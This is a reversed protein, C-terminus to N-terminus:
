YYRYSSYGSTFRSKRKELQLKEILNDINYTNKTDTDISSYLLKIRNILSTSKYENDENKLEELLADIKFRLEKQKQAHLIAEKGGAENVMTNIVSTLVLHPPLGYVNKNKAFSLFFYNLLWSIVADDHGDKRHDIRENKRVLSTVQNILVKDKILGGTYKTAALFTTGYLNDRASRGSAATAYGFEKKYKVYISSDRRSVPTNVIEAYKPETDMGDVVWNFIRKFPDEGKLPLIQLLYDILVVAASKREPILIFNPYSILLETIWEAFTLLNTENYNGALVVEGTTADTGILAIDDKGIGESMDLGLIIKRNPLGAKVESEPVYWRLIYGHTTIETYLEQMASDKIKRITEKDLPSTESGEIWINLYDAQAAIPDAMSEEIKRRLWEDTYGLQRHNFELLVMNKGSKNNRRITEELDEENKCDFLKETWPLSKDYIQTKFYEGSRSNLYGATTTLLLGYPQGNAKALDKAAGGSAIAAPMSIDINNCFPGEDFHQVATTMGRGLNLADKASARPVATLYSNGLANVTIKETNNTDNKGRLNLYPPLASIIDKLRTINKTRLSDDKTMLFFDTNMTAVMLLYVMLTDTSISKGTQRPQILLSTVHNFFLWYLAINGRNARLPMNEPGATAPVKVVERLFYWPNLKCERAVRTKMEISLNPDHPNVGILGHDLLTLCFAHNEIGMTKLLKAYRIFTTNSTQFDAIASKNEEKYWDDKFLIM